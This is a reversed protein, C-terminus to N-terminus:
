LALSAAPRIEHYNRAFYVLAETESGETIGLVRCFLIRHTGEEAVSAVRCDFSILAGDLQSAGSPAPTWEAARFRDEMAPGGGFLVSLAQQRPSLTNVCLVGNQRLAELSSSAKNVCVLLTPPTDTVSCVASATFGFRGAPGDTAVIHVAAALRAMANRFAVKTPGEAEGGSTGPTHSTTEM